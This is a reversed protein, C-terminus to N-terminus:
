EAPLCTAYVAIMDSATAGMCDEVQLAILVLESEGAEDVPASTAVTLTPHATRAGDLVGLGSLVQWRYSLADGDPDSSGTGDLAFRQGDCPLCDLVLPDEDVVECDTEEEGGLNIGAEAHPAANETRTLVEVEVEVPLSAAGGEDWTTLSVAYRGPLDPSLSVIQADAGVLDSTSVRSGAPVRAVTWAWTLAAGGEDKSGAGDFILSGCEEATSGEALAAAAVPGQEAAGDCDNDVLPDVEPAGPYRSPDGDDCDGGDLSFGDGDRDLGVCPANASGPSGLDRMPGWPAPAACWQAPDDNSEAGPELTLTAGEAPILGDGWAVANLVVTRDGDELVLRLSDVQNDLVLGEWTLAVAVGGNEASADWAGIVALAGPELRLSTGIRFREGVGSDIWLGLLDRVAGSTNQVEFWEGQADSVALPNVMVETILLDGEAWAVEDVMGDCDNDIGDGDLEEAGPFVLRDVDDCDPEEGCPTWGDGDADFGEDVVGDGDNDRQDCQEADVCDALGDGDGDVFGEDVVGDGDNDLGDCAEADLGDCLGDADADPLGEDVQGQCNDDVGNCQEVQHPHVQPDLDDCDGDTVTWGDADEDVCTECTAAPERGSDQVEPEGCSALALFLLSSGALARTM